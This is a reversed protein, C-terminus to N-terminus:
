DAEVDSTLVWEGDTYTYTRTGSQIVNEEADALITYTETKTDGEWPPGSPAPDGDLTTQTSTYTSDTKTATATAPDSTDTSDDPSGAECGTLIVPVAILIILFAKMPTM